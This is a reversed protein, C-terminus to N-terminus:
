LIIFDNNGSKQKYEDKNVSYRNNTSQDISQATCFIRDKYIIDSETLDALVYGLEVKYVFLDYFVGESLTFVDTIELYNKNTLATPSELYIKENTSDDRILLVVSDTYFRPLISITQPDTTPLLHKM